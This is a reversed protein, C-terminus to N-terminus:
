FSRDVTIGVTRPQIYNFWNSAFNTQNYYGGGILGRKNTVNDLYATVRWDKLKVGTHLDVQAYPPYIQRLSAVDPSPVFEGRRRGVYNVSAGVFGNLDNALPRQYETAFRGSFHSSYPLPDGAVAFGAAQPPFGELLKAENWAGWASLRLGETPTLETSLELGQSKARGANGDYPLGGPSNLAIQINNWNVYYASLDYSLMNDLASGKAGVEYNKTTDPNFHCPSQAEVCTVNPGGPRYGSTVRAYVMLDQSLRYRPTLLYTFSNDDTEQNLFVPVPGALPGSSETVSTQRNHSERGGIQVDFSDTVRVTLDTFAAYEAYTMDQNNLFVTGIFDGNNLNDALLAQGVLDNQEHTYYGGILWDLHSTLPIMARLEQTFKDTNYPNVVIGSMPATVNPFFIPLFAGYQATDDIRDSNRSIGYSTLSTLDVNAVKGKVTLSYLENKWNSVGTGYTDSQKLGGGLSVDVDPAGFTKTQQFLASLKVSLNPLPTWLAALHGGETESENAGKQGTVVNDIYGADDRYFGSLRFALTDTVPVNIGARFNYGPGHSNDISNTGAEVHGSFKDTSPDLTVYKVLGGISSAGYLTGQPGRLVEIRQLEGPDIDPTAGFIGFVAASAGYPVDDITYAVVPNGAITGTTIGRIALFSRNNINQLDLGPVSSFYDEVKVQNQALLSDASIATVPVPVDQIREERKQATVVVEELRAENGTQQTGPAGTEDAFAPVLAVPMVLAVILIGVKM